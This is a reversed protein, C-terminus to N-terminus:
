LAKRVALMYNPTGFSEAYRSRIQQNQRRMRANMKSRFREGFETM